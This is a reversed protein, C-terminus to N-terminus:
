VAFNIEATFCVGDPTSGEVLYVPPQADPFTKQFGTLRLTDGLKAEHAYCIFFTEVKRTRLEEPLADWIIDGYNGSFLHGNGDLDSWRITRKGLEQIGEAPFRIKKPEPCDIAVPCPLLERATFSAPRLIKRNEPNVLIWDSKASVCVHGSEDSMRYVRRMHAGHIGDEWTRITLVDQYAPRHHIHVGARSLLFVNRMELLREHNLGRADYDYGGFLAMISLLAGMRVRKDPGCDHFNIEEQRMYGNEYLHQEFPKLAAVEKQNANLAATDTQNENLTSTGKQNANLAATDKQNMM